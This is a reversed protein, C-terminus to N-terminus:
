QYGVQYWCVRYKWRYRGCQQKKQATSPGSSSTIKGQCSGVGLAWHSLSKGGKETVTYTWTNGKREKLKIEYSNTGKDDAWSVITSSANTTAQATSQVPTVNATPPAATTTASGTMGALATAIALVIKRQIFKM